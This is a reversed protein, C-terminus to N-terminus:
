LLEHCSNMLVVGINNLLLWCGEVNTFGWDMVPSKICVFAEFLRQWCHFWVWGWFKSVDCFQNFIIFIFEIFVFTPFLFNDFNQLCWYVVLQQPFVVITIKEGFKIRVKFDYTCFYAVKCIKWMITLLCSKWVCPSTILHAKGLLLEAWIFIIWLGQPWSGFVQHCPPLFINCM